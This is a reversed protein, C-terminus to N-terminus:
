SSNAPRTAVLTICVARATRSVQIITVSIITKTTM